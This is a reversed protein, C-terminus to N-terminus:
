INCRHRTMQSRAVVQATITGGVKLHWVARRIGRQVYRRHQGDGRPPERHAPVAIALMAAHRSGTPQCPSPWCRRTAAGPPSARRHGADGRPPERHAPVAIALMAAALLPALPEGGIRPPVPPALTRAHPNITRSKLLSVFMRLSGM